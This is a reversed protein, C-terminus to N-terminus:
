QMVSNSELNIGLPLTLCPTLSPYSNDTGVSNVMKQKKGPSQDLYNKLM